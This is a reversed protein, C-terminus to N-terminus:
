ECADQVLMAGSPKTLTTIEELRAPFGLFHTAVVAATREDLEERLKNPDLNFGDSETDVLHVEFGCLGFCAITTPFSFGSLLVRRREGCRQKVLLAAALNASSGSNVLTIFPAGLTQGLEAELLRLNRRSEGLEAALFEVFGQSGVHGTCPYLPKSKMNRRNFGCVPPFPLEFRTTSRTTPGM